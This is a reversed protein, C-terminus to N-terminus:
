KSLAQAPSVNGASFAANPPQTSLDSLRRVKGSEEGLFGFEPTAKAVFDRAVREVHRDAASVLTRDRKRESAVGGEFFGLGVSALMRALELAVSELSKPDVM